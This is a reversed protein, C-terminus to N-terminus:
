WTPARGRRRAPRRDGGVAQAPRVAVARLLRPGLPAGVRSAVAQAATLGPLVRVPVDKWRADSPPSRWCRAAMAFVGPDGSSVVAVRRAAGPWTWRSRPGSPRSGTTPPTGASAAANAPVRDLYPGYGVLDDAGALAAQAEPTLWDRGAPGLGVVVVEGARETRRPGTPRRRDAAPSPLLALSFYPVDDPDVEALPAVREGTPPPGSSTGPRTWGAPTAWRRASAPFTRGLKM